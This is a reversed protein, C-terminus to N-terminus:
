NILSGTAGLVFADLAAENNFPTDDDACGDDFAEVTGDEIFPSARLGAGRTADGEPTSIDLDAGVVEFEVNGRGDAAPATATFPILVPVTGPVAFEVFNVFEAGGFGFAAVEDAEPTRDELGDIGAVTCALEESFTDPVFTKTFAGTAGLEEVEVDGFVADVNTVGFAGAIVVPAVPAEPEFTDGVSGEDATGGSCPPISEKDDAAPM